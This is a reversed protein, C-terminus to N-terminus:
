PDLRVGTREVIARFRAVEESHFTRTREPTNEGAWPVLGNILLRNAVEPEAVTAVLARNLATAIQPQLGPPALIMNWTVIDYGPLVEGMTPIDPFGPFRDRSTVALGQLLGDRVSGTAAALVAFSFQGDGRQLGRMTEAGSRYPVHIFSSELDLALMEVALHSISGIGSTAYTFEGRKGRLREILQRAD